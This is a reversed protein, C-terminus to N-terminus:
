SISNSSLYSLLKASFKISPYGSPEKVKLKSTVVEYGTAFLEAYEELSSRPPRVGYRELWLKVYSEAEKVIWSRAEDGSSSDECARLARRGLGAARRKTVRVFEESILSWTLPTMFTYDMLHSKRFSFRSVLAMLSGYDREARTALALEEALEPPLITCLPHEAGGEQHIRQAHGALYAEIGVSDLSLRRRYAEDVWSTLSLDDIVKIFSSGFRELFSALGRGRGAKFAVRLEQCVARYINDAFEKLPSGTMRIAVLRPALLDLAHHFYFADAYDPGWSLISYLRTEARALRAACEAALEPTLLKELLKPERPMRRGLDHVDEGDVLKNIEKSVAESIGLIRRSLAAHVDWSPL